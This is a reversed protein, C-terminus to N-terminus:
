NRPPRRCRCLRPRVRSGITLSCRTSIVSHDLRVSEEFFWNARTGIPYGASKGLLEEDPAAIASSALSALVLCLIPVRWMKM